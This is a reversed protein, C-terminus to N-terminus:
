FYNEYLMSRFSYQSFLNFYRTTGNSTKILKYRDSQLQISLGSSGSLRTIPLSYFVDKIVKRSSM